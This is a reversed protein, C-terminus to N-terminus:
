SIVPTEETPKENWISYRNINRSIYMVVALIVFLGLSWVLLAYDELWMLIYIYVYLMVLAATIFYSLKNEHLFGRIYLWIMGIIMISSVLYALDFWIHESLSLLLLYFLGLALGVLIYQFPHIQKRNIVEILFFTMFTLVIFLMGYKVSRETQQYQDYPTVLKVGFNAWDSINKITVWDSYAATPSAKAYDAEYNYNNSNYYTNDSTFGNDRVEYNGDLVQSFPLNIRDITWTADFWKDNVTKPDPLFRGVFSPSPRNSKVNIINTNATAIYKIYQSWRLKYKIAFPIQKKETVNINSWINWLYYNENSGNELKIAQWDFDATEFWWNIGRFDDVQITLKTKDRIIDSPNIWLKAYDINDFYGSMDIDATYVPVAFIGRALTKTQVDTNIALKEPLIQTIYESFWTGTTNKKRYYINVVPWMITQTQSRTNSIENNVDQQRDQREGIIDSVFFTPISMILILAAVIIWKTTVSVNWRIKDLM